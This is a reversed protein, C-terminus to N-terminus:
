LQRKGFLRLIFGLVLIPVCLLAANLMDRIFYRWCHSKPILLQGFLRFMNTLDVRTYLTYYVLGRYILSLLLFSLFFSFATRANALENFASALTRGALRTSRAKANIGGRSFTTLRASM